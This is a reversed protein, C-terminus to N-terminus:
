GDDVDDDNSNGGDEGAAHSHFPFHEEAINWEGYETYRPNSTDILLIHRQIWFCHSLMM